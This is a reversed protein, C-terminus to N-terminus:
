PTPGISTCLAAPDRGRYRRVVRSLKELRIFAEDTAPPLSIRFESRFQFHPKRPSAASNAVLLSSTGSREILQSAQERNGADLEDIELITVTPVFQGRKSCLRPVLEMVPQIGVRRAIQIIKCRLNGRQVKDNGDIVRGNM